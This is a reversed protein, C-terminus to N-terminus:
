GSFGNTSTPLTTTQSAQSALIAYLQALSLPGIYECGARIQSIVTANLNLSQAITAATSTPIGFVASVLVGIYGTLIANVIYYTLSSPVPTWQTFTASNNFLANCAALRQSVCSSISSSNAYKLRDARSPCSTTYFIRAYGITYLGVTALTQRRRRSSTSTNYPGYATNNGVLCGAVNTQGSNVYTTTCLTSLQTNDAMVSNSFATSSNTYLSKLMLANVRYEEGFGPQSQNPPYLSILSLVVMAAIAVFILGLCLFGGMILGTTM